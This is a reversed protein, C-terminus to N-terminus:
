RRQNYIKLAHEAGRQAAQYVMENFSKLGPAYNLLAKLKREYETAGDYLLGWSEAWTDWVVAQKNAADEEMKVIPNLWDKTLM